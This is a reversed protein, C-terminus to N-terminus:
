LTFRCRGVAPPRSSTSTLVGSKYRRVNANFAVNSLKEDCKLKLRQFWLRKRNPNQYQYGAVGWRHAASRHQVGACGGGGHRLPAPQMQFCFQLLISLLECYKLNWPTTGPPKLKPKVPDVHVPRGHRSIGSTKQPVDVAMERKEQGLQSGQVLPKCADV